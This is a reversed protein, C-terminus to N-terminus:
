ATRGAVLWYVFGSLFGATAFVQWIVPSPMALGAGQGLQAIVPVAVLSLGGGIVYYFISRIRAVEGIIVLGLAPLMTMASLLLFAQKALDIAETLSVEGGGQVAHTLRESGLTVLIFGAVVAALCFAIPVLILRGIVALMVLM